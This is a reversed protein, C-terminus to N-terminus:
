STKCDRHKAEIITTKLTWLYYFIQSTSLTCHVIYKYTHFTDQIHRNKTEREKKKKVVAETFISFKSCAKMM